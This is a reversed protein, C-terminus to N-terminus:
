ARISSLNRIAAEAHKRYSRFNQMADSTVVTSANGSSFQIAATAILARTAIFLRKNARRNKPLLSFIAIPRRLYALTNWIGWISASLVPNVQQYYESLPLLDAILDDAASKQEPHMWSFAASGFVGATVAPAFIAHALIVDLDTISKATDIQKEIEEFM